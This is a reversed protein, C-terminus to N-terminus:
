WNPNQKINQNLDIERQPIPWLYDRDERFNRRIGIDWIKQVGGSTYDFGQVLGVKNAGVGWRYMDYMRLGEFALEIAREDRIKERLQSQTMGTSILPMDVSPRSRVENLADYVSQDIQNLEVKAEAYMLLVDAYRILIFDIAGQGPNSKDNAYDIYKRINWGHSTTNDQTNIKDVSRNNEDPSSNYLTTNGGETYLISGPYYFSYGWRPDLNSYPNASNKVGKYEYKEFLKRVPEATTSGGISNPGWDFSGHVLGGKAYQRSFIIESSNEGAYTFLEGYDDHLKYVNLDIVAKAAQAAIDYKKNRLSIRAKLALAAGKTARGIDANGYQVPLGNQNIIDDLEALIFSVTEDKPTNTIHETIGLPTLILPVDGWLSTLNTYYYARLFRAESKVRKIIEPDAEPIKDINALVDNAKRIGRYYRTWVDSFENDLSAQIGMGLKYWTTWGNRIYGIDTAGDLNIVMNQDDLDRYISNVSLIADKESKWFVNESILTPPFLELSDECSTMAFLLLFSYISIRKMKM